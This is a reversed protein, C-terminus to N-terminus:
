TASQEAHGATPQRLHRPTVANFPRSSNCLRATASTFLRPRDCFGQAVVVVLNSKLAEGIQKTRYQM